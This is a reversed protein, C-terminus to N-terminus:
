HCLPDRLLRDYAQALRQMRRSFSYRSHVTERGSTAYEARLGPNRLLEQIAEALGRIDGPEVLSGIRGQSLLRPVGAVRTAVVPVGFAMAELVVNPLGERLSSLAFIDMAEFYPRVDAQWGVLHVRSQLQLTALMSELRPRDDGEGVILLHLDHGRTLLDALARILNDFGKEASLRGVSGILKGSTPLGLLTKAETITRQRKYESVDIANELLECREPAVGAALCEAQLDESVCFVREYRPLCWRDLRYYLPTRRTHRVWGHVTTVLRMPHFRRLLLGLLNSKYDHGHWITVQKAQCLRRLRRVVQWDWPGRDPITILPASYQEAKRIIESYGPDDPPTLYACFMRYGLPELFRPSNLITKDPGGGSGTVVRADLVVPTKIGLENDISLREARRKDSSVVLQLM